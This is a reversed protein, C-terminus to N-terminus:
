FGHHKEGQHDEPVQSRGPEHCLSVKVPNNQLSAKGKWLSVAVVNWLAPPKNQKRKISARINQSSICSLSRNICEELINVLVIIIKNPPIQKEQLM